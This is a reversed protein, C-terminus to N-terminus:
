VPEQPELLVRRRVVKEDFPIVHTGPTGSSSPLTTLTLAQHPVVNSPRVHRRWLAAAKTGNFAVHRLEPCRGFLDDFGNPTEKTIASDTSGAREASELVDWLAVGRNAITGVPMGFVGTLLSWFQNRPDAYYQPLRLSDDGPLTGLIVIRSSEDLVPPLGHKMTIVAETAGRTM